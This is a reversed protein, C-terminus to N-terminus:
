LASASRARFWVITLVALMLLALVFPQNVPVPEADPVAPPYEVLYGVLLFDDDLFNDDFWGGILGPNNFPPDALQVSLLMAAQTELLGPSGIGDNPEGTIWNAYNFPPTTVGVGPGTEEWFPQGAEPGAVWIWNGDNVPDLAGIWAMGELPPVDVTFQDVIFANEEATTITVLYGNQGAFQRLAAADRAAEWTMDDGPEYPVLEYSHGTSPDTAVQAHVSFSVTFLLPILRILKRMKM